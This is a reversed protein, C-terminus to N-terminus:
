TNKCDIKLFSFLLYYTLVFNTHPTENLILFIALGFVMKQFVNLNNSKIIAKIWEVSYIIGFIGFAALFLFTTSTQAANLEVSSIVNKWIAYQNDLESLGVGIFPHQKWIIFNTIMSVIRTQTTGHSQFYVIKSFMYYNVSLLWEMISEGFFVITIVGTVTIFIPLFAYRQKNWIVMLVTLFLLIYGGTSFTTILAIVFIASDRLLHREDKIWFLRIQLAFALYAAFISPEWFPGCNRTPEYLWMNYFIVSKYKVFDDTIKVITPFGSMSVGIVVFLFYAIMSFVAIYRMAKVFLSLLEDRTFFLSLLYAAFVATFFSIWLSLGNGKENWNGIMSPFASLIIIIASYNKTITKKPIKCQNKWLFLIMIFFIFLYMADDMHPLCLSIASGRIISMILILVVFIKKHLDNIKIRSNM